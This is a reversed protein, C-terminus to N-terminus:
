KDATDIEGVVADHVASSMYTQNASLKMGRQLMLFREKGVKVDYKKPKPAVPKPSTREKRDYEKNQKWAGYRWSASAAVTLILATLPDM